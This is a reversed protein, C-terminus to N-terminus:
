GEFVQLRLELQFRLLQLRQAVRELAAAGHHAAAEPDVVTVLEVYQRGLPVIRNATGGRDHRGGELSDLGFSERFRLAAEDLDGAAYVVHDLRLM